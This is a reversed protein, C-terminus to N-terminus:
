YSLKKFEFCYLLGIQTVLETGWTDKHIFFVPITQEVNLWQPLVLM